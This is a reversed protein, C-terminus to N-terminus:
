AAAAAVRRERRTVLQGAIPEMPLITHWVIDYEALAHRLSRAARQESQTIEETPEVRGTARRYQAAFAPADLLVVELVVGRVRLSTLM